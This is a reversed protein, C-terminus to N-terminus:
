AVSSVRSIVNGRKLLRKLNNGNTSVTEFHTLMYFGNDRSAAIILYNDSDPIRKILNIRDIKEDVNTTAFEWEHANLILNEPLINGHDAQIKDVIELSLVLPRVKGDESLSGPLHVLTELASERSLLLKVRESFFIQENKLNKLIKTTFQSKKM